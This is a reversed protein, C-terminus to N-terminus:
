PPLFNDLSSPLLEVPSFPPYTYCMQLYTQRKLIAMKKSGPLRNQRPLSYMSLSVSHKFQSFSKNDISVSYKEQKNQQFIEGLM